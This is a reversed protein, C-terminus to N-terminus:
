VVLVTVENASACVACITEKLIRNLESKALITNYQKCYKVILYITFKHYIKTFGNLEEAQAFPLPGLSVACRLDSRFWQQKREM